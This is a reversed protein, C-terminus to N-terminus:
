PSAADGDCVWSGRRGGGGGDALGGGLGHGGRADHGRAGGRRAAGSTTTANGTGGRGGERGAHARACVAARRPLPPARLGRASGTHPSQAGGGARVQPARGNGAAPPLPQGRCGSRPPAPGPPACRLTPWAARTQLHTKPTGRKKKKQGDERTHSHPQRATPTTTSNKPTAGTCRRRPHRGTVRQHTNTGRTPAPPQYHAQVQESRATERGQTGCGGQVRANCTHTNKEGGMEGPEDKTPNESRHSASRRGSGARARHEGQPPHGGKSEPCGWWSRRWRHCDMLWRRKRKKGRVRATATAEQPHRRRMRRASALPWKPSAAMPPPPPNPGSAQAATKTSIGPDPAKWRGVRHLVM